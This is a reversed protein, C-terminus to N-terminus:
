RAFVTRSRFIAKVTNAFTSIATHREAQKGEQEAHHQQNLDRAIAEQTVECRAASSVQYGTSAIRDARDQATVLSYYNLMIVRRQDMATPKM